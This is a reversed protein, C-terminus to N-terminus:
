RSRSLKTFDHVSRRDYWRRIVWHQSKTPQKLELGFQVVNGNFEEIVYGDLYLM